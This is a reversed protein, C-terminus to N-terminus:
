AYVFSTKNTRSGKLYGRLTEPNINKSYAAEAVSGYFIGTQLDIIPKSTKYENFTGTRKNDLGKKSKRTTKYAHILNHSYDCWELNEVNNNLKNGDIHNIINLNEKKELFANAVLRHILFIKSSGDRCLSVSPYGVGNIIIKLLCGKKYYNSKSKNNVIRDLSKVNGRNSIEYLPYDEITKWIEINDAM